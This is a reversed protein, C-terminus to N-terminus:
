RNLFHRAKTTPDFNVLSILESGKESQITQHPLQHIHQVSKAHLITNTKISKQSGPEIALEAM